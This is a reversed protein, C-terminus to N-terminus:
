PNVDTTDRMRGKELHLQTHSDDKGVAGSYILNDKVPTCPHPLVPYCSSIEKPYHFLGADQDHNCICLDICADICNM